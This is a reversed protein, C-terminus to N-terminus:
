AHHEVVPDAFEQSASSAGTLHDALRTAFVLATFTVNAGSSTRFTSAGGVYLNETSFVRLNTDVVGDIESTGMVAGGAQHYTDGANELYAPNLALLDEDIKLEGFGARRLNDGIMLAFERIAALEDGKVRWDLVVRPLGNSDCVKPDITLRSEAMPSQEGQLLLWIKANSPVFIRHDRIYRWIIPFLLRVLAPGRRLFEGAGTLKRNYLVARLFQKLFVMHESVDSEFGFQGQMNFTQRLVIKESRMRIKPQFKNKQHIINAFTKLFTARNVPHFSGIRAGLHDQFYRGVNVNDRWPAPWNPDEAAALLLRANEITGAALIFLGGAIWAAEGSKGRARVATLRNGEGRFAVVTHGTLVEIRPNSEIQTAFLQAFNPTRMWRSLFMELDPGLDPDQAGVGKLVEDDALMSAPIGLNLYTPEYYPAIEDYKIPWGSNDVGCRPLFDAPVFEVLQGGWLSSTGGLNRGRGQEIGFHRHGISQYSRSEFKDLYTEGAEIVLVDRNRSAILNALYLGVAGAGIIVIRSSAENPCELLRSASILM